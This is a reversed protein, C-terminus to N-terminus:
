RALVALLPAICEDRNAFWNDESWISLKQLSSLEGNALSQLFNEGEEASSYKTMLALTHLSSSQLAIESAFNLITSRSAANDCHLTDIQLHELHLSKALIQSLPWEQITHEERYFFYLSLKKLGREQDINCGIEDFLANVVQPSSFRINYMKLETIAEIDKETCKDTM